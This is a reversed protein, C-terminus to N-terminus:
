ARIESGGYISQDEAVPEAGISEALYHLDFNEEACRCSFYFVVGAATWLITALAGALATAIVQLHRQPIFLAGVVLAVTIFMMVLGLILLTGLHNRVLKKSRSLANSVALEEVVVVHQSLSFWLAFLIGPVILLILGGCIAMYMLITTGILPLFRRLGHGIAELATVERGLYLRAVAHIVSANTLPILIFNLALQLIYSLLTLTSNAEFTQQAEMADLFTADPPLEPSNALDIFGSILECPIILILVITFLLGFHNKTIAIAQDLIGGLGLYQIKYAM